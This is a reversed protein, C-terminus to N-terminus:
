RSYYLKTTSLTLLTCDCLRGVCPTSTRYNLLTMMRLTMNVVLVKLRSSRKACGRRFMSTSVSFTYFEHWPMLHQTRERLPLRAIHYKMLPHSLAIHPISPVYSMQAIIEEEPLKDDEAAEMNARVSLGM